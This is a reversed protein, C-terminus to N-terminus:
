RRERDTVLKKLERILKSRERFPVASFSVPPYDALGRQVRITFTVDWKLGMFYKKVGINRLNAVPFEFTEFSREYSFISYYRVVLKNREELIKVYQFNLLNILLVTTLFIAALIIMATFLEFIVLVAMALFSSAGTILLFMRLKKVGKENCFEM